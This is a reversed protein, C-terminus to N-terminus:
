LLKTALNTIGPINNDVEGAKKNLNAKTALNTVDTTKNETDTAKRNFAATQLITMSTLRKSWGVVIQYRKTLMQLRKRFVKRVQIM